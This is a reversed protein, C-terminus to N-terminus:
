GFGGGTMRAGFVGEVERAAEVVVDLEMCSVRYDDRLSGHSRNMLRGVEELRGAALAAACPRVRENETVVDGGVRGGAGGGRGGGGAGGGGAGGRGGGGGAGGGGGEGGGRRAAYEGGALAHRVGTNVILGRCGDPMRVQETLGSRCDLLLAHGQRG